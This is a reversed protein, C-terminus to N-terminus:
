RQDLLERPLPAVIETRGGEMGASPEDGDREVAQAGRARRQGGRGRIRLQEVVAPRWQGSCCLRPALAVPDRHQVRCGIRVHGAARIVWLERHDTAVFSTRTMALYALRNGHFPRMLPSYSTAWM